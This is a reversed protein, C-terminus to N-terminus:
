VAPYLSPIFYYAVQVLCRGKQVSNENMKYRRVRACLRTYILKVHM